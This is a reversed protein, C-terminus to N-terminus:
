HGVNLDVGGSDPAVSVLYDRARRLTAFVPKGAVYDRYFEARKRATEHQPDLKWPRPTMQEFPLWTLTGPSPFTTPGHYTDPGPYLGGRPTPPTFEAAYHVNVTRVQLLAATVRAAEAGDIGRTHQLVTKTGGCHESLHYLESLVCKLARRFNASEPEVDALWDLAADFDSRLEALMDM